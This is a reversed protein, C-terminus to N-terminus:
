KDENEKPRDKNYKELGLHILMRAVESPSEEEIKEIEEFDKRLEGWIATDLKVSYKSISM